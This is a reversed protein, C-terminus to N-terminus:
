KLTMLTEPHLLVYHASNYLTQLANKLYQVFSFWEGGRKERQSLDQLVPKSQSICILVNELVHLGMSVLKGRCGDLRELFFM